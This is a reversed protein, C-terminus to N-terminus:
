RSGRDRDDGGITSRFRSLGAIESFSRGGGGGCNGIRQSSNIMIMESRLYLLDPPEVNSWRQRDGASIVIRHELRREEVSIVRKVHEDNEVSPQNSWCSNTLLLGDKRMNSGFGGKKTRLDLSRRKNQLFQFFRGQEGASSHRGSVRRVQPPECSTGEGIDLVHHNQASMSTMLRRDVLLVDEPDVRYRCLPCTSHADLWTDVCEVHFAHKCKPLLRLVEAPEFRALCVACELGDKHGSLSQFRFVPLSEIVARNIGSNKRGSAISGIPYLTPRPNASYSYSGVRKCHKAYLLLLFTISFMTTLLGVIVAMSPHVAPPRRSRQLVTHQQQEPSPSPHHAPSAGAFPQEPSLPSSFLSPSPSPSSSSSSSSSPTLLLILTPLLLSINM